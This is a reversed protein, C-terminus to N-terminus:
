DRMLLFKEDTHNSNGRLYAKELEMQTTQKLNQEYVDQAHQFQHAIQQSNQSSKLLEYSLKPFEKELAHFRTAFLNAKTMEEQFYPEASAHVQRLFTEEISLTDDQQQPPQSGKPSIDMPKTDLPPPRNDTM